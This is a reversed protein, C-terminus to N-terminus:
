NNQSTQIQALLGCLRVLETKLQKELMDRTVGGQKMLNEKNQIDSLNMEEPMKYFSRYGSCLKDLSSARGSLDLHTGDIQKCIQSFEQSAEM